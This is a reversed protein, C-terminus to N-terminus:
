ARIVGAILTAAVSALWVSAMRQVILMRRGGSQETRTLSGAMGWVLAVAAVMLCFLGLKPGFQSDAPAPLLILGFVLAKPNLMTTVYIKRATVKSKTEIGGSRGWLSIALFMVWLAATIKLVNGAAPWHQLAEAGLYVLPMIATLYGALEAPLLRTVGRLGRQAGALGMLTNTPGPALLLALVASCFAAYTM